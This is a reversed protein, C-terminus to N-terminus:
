TTLESVPGLLEIKGEKVEYVLVEGTTVNGNDEFSIEKSLGDYSEFDEELYTLMKERTDNGAKIGEIFINAADYGEVAYTGPALDFKKNYDKAFKALKAVDSDETALRCACTMIAGEAADAGANEIFGVDLVGDGGLFVGTYGGDSLQKALKGATDYYGGFYVAPPKAGVVANVVDSYIQKAPDAVLAAGVTKVGAPELLGQTGEALAQGYAQNDHVYALSTFKAVKTVYDVVGKGQVDDHPVVRHFIKPGRLPKEPLTTRTASPSIMALGEAELDPILAETEGSFIPGLLGIVDEDPIVDDKLTTAKAPDGETDHDEFVIEVDLDGSANAQEIALQAGNRAPIGLNAVSGTLPGMFAIKVQKKDGGGGGGGQQPCATALLAVAAFAVLFVPFRRRM